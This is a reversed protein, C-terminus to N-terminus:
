AHWYGFPSYWTSFNNSSLVVRPDEVNTATLLTNMKVIIWSGTVESITGTWLYWGNEKNILETISGEHITLFERNDVTEKIEQQLEQKLDDITAMLKDELAQILPLYLSDHNHSTITGTLGLNVLAEDKNEVDILNKDKRLCKNLFTQYLSVWGEDTKLKVVKM